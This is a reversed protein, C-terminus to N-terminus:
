RLKLTKILEYMHILLIAYYSEIGPEVDIDFSVKNLRMEILEAM